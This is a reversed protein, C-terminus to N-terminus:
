ILISLQIIFYLLIYMVTFSLKNKEYDFLSLNFMGIFNMGLISGWIPLEENVKMVGKYKFQTNINSPITGLYLHRESRDVRENMNYFSFQRHSIKGKNNLIHVFSFSEDKYHYGLAFGYDQYLRYDDSLTYFSFNEVLLDDFKFSSSYRHTDYDRDLYIRESASIRSDVLTGLTLLSFSLFTNVPYNRVINEEYFNAKLIPDGGFNLCSISLEVNDDKILHIASVILLYIIKM